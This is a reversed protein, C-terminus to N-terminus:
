RAHNHTLDNCTAVAYRQEHFFHRFRHKLCRRRCRRERNWHRHLIRQDSAEVSQPRHPPDGIEAGGDATAEAIVQEGGDRRLGVSFQPQAQAIEDLGPQHLAAAQWRAAGIQELMGQDAVRSIFGQDPSFALLQVALDGCHQPVTKRFRPLSLRFQEGIVRDRICM